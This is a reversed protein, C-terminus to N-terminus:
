NRESVFPWQREVSIDITGINDPDAEKIRSAHRLIVQTRFDQGPGIVIEEELLSLLHRSAGLPRDNNERLDVVRLNYIYLISTKENSVKIVGAPTISISSSGGSSGITGPVTMIANATYIQGTTLVGLPSNISM